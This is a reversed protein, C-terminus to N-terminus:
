TGDVSTMAPDAGAGCIAERPLSNCGGASLRAHRLTAHIRNNFPTPAHTVPSSCCHRDVSKAEAGADSSKVEGEINGEWSVPCDAVDLAFRVSGGQEGLSHSFACEKVGRDPIVKDGEVASAPTSDNRDDRRAEGTLRKRHCALSAPNFVLSPEPRVDNADNSIDLRRQDEKLVDRRNSNM